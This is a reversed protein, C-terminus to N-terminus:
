LVLLSGIGVQRCSGRCPVCGDLVRCPREYRCRGIRSVPDERNEFLAVRIPIERDHAPSVGDRQLCVMPLPSGGALRVDRMRDRDGGDDGLETEVLHAGARREQV